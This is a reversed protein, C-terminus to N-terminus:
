VGAVERVPRGSAAEAKAVDALVTRFTKINDDGEEASHHWGHVFVVMLLDKAAAETNLHNIVAEMGQRQWLDGQDNFEVFGLFYDGPSTSTGAHWQLTAKSCDAKSIECLTNQTRYATYPACGGLLLIIFVAAVLKM